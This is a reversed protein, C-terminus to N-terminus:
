HTSVENAAADKDRQSNNVGDAKGVAKDAEAGSSPAALGMAHEVTSNALQAALPIYLRKTHRIFDHPRAHVRQM